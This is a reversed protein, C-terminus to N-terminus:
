AGALLQCGCALSEAGRASIAFCHSKWWSKKPHTPILYHASVEGQTLLRLSEADGVATYHLVLFRVRENKAVSPYHTDIQYTGRDILENSNRHDSSSCGALLLLLGGSLLKRM